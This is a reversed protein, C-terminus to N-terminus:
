KCYGREVVLDQLDKGELGACSSRPDVRLSGKQIEQKISEREQTVFWAHTRPGVLILGVVLLAFLILIIGDQGKQGKM